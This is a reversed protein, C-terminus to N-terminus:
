RKEVPLEVSQMGKGTGIRALKGVEGSYPGAAIVCYAFTM